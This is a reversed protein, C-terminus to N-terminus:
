KKGDQCNELTIDDIAIDGTVTIGRVAEIIIAFNDQLGIALDGTFQWQNGQNGAM